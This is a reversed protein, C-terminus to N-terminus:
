CWDKITAFNPNFQYETHIHNLASKDYFRTGGDSPIKSTIDALLNNFAITGPILQNTELDTQNRTANHTSIILDTNAILVSDSM